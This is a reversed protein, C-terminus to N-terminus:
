TSSAFVSLRDPKIILAAQGEYDSSMMQLSSSKEIIMNGGSIDLFGKIYTQKIRNANPDATGWESM